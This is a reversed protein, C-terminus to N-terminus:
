LSNTGTVPNSGTSPRNHISQMVKISYPYIMERNSLVMIYFIILMNRYFCIKNDIHIKM